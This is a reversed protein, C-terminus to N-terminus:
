PKIPWPISGSGNYTNPLDRLSQRYQAWQQKAEVSLPSDPIQTWDSDKLLSNRLNRVENLDHQEIVRQWNEHLQNNPILEYEDPLIWNSEKVIFTEVLRDSKRVVAWSDFDLEDNPVLSFGEPVSWDEPLSLDIFKDVSNDSNKILAWSTQYKGM